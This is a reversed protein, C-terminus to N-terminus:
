DNRSTEEFLKTQEDPVLEKLVAVIDAMVAIEDDMQTASMKGSAVRRPYVTHRLRLERRAAELRQSPTTTM